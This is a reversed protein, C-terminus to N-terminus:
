SEIGGDYSCAEKFREADFLPNDLSFKAAFATVLEWKACREGQKFSAFVSAVWEYDKRSFRSSNM